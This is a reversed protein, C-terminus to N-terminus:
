QSPKPMSDSGSWGYQKIARELAETKDTDQHVPAATQTGSQGIIPPVRQAVPQATPQANLQANVPPHPVTSPSASTQGIYQPPRPVPAPVQAPAPAPQARTEPQGIYQASGNQSTSPSPAASPQGLYQAGRAATADSQSDGIYQPKKPASAQAAAPQQQAPATRTTTHTEPATSTATLANTAAQARALKDAKAAADAEARAQAKAEANARAEDAAAQRAAAAAAQAARKEARREAWTKQTSISAAPKDQAPAPVAAVAAPAPAPAALKASNTVTSAALAQRAAAPNTGVWGAHEIVRELMAQSEISSGDLSLAESANQQVCAWAQTRECARALQLAADRQLERKVLEDSISAYEPRTQQQANLAKLRARATTLDHQNMSQRVGSMEDSGGSAKSNAAITPANSRDIVGHTSPGYKSDIAGSVSHEGSAATDDGSDHQFYFVAGALLLVAAAGAIITKRQTWNESGPLTDPDHRPDAYANRASQEVREIQRARHEAAKQAIREAARKADWGSRAGTDASSAGAAGASTSM